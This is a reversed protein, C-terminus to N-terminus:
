LLHTEGNQQLIQVAERVRQAEQRAMVLLADPTDVVVVDELGILVLKRGEAGYALVRESDLAMVEGRLYNGTGDTLLELLADWSGVDSWGMEVPLVAVRQAREMVGYDISIKPLTHWLTPLAEALAPTGWRARLQALVAALPPMYREIEELIRQAQWIFMGSNWTYDGSAVYQQALALAPKEVFQQVAYVPQANWDGLLIGRRIYGYGTAPFSPAIGLTVLYGERAVQVAAKLAELQREPKQIYHDAPLVLMVAQPDHQLLHLAGLGICAATGRGEPELLFNEPPLLPAQAQLLPTQEANSIVLIREPPLWPLLRAVTLSFLSEGEFLPLVHKPRQRRSLPWLRTGEGGAMILAYVHENAM